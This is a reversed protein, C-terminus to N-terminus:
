QAGGACAAARFHEVLAAGPHPQRRCEELAASVEESVRMADDLGDLSGRCRGLISVAAQPFDASVLTAIDGALSAGVVPPLLFVQQGPITVVVQSQIFGQVAESAHHIRTM